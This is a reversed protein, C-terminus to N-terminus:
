VQSRYTGQEEGDGLMPLARTISCSGSMAMERRRSRAIRRRPHSQRRRSSGRGASTMAPRDEFSM